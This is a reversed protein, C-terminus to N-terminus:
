LPKVQLVANECLDLLHCRIRGDSRRGAAELGAFQLLVSGVRRGDEHGMREVRDVQQREGFHHRRRLRVGRQDLRCLFGQAFDPHEGQMDAFLNVGMDGVAEKLGDPTLRQPQDLVADGRGLFDVLRDAHAKAQAPALHPQEFGIAHRATLGPHLMEHGLEARAQGPGPGLQHIHRFEVIFQDIQDGPLRIGLRAVVGDALQLADAVLVQDTEQPHQLFAVPARSLHQQFMIGAAPSRHRHGNRPGARHFARPQGHQRSPDIIVAVHCFATVKKGRALRDIGEQAMDPRIDGIDAGAVTIVRGFGMDHMQAFRLQALRQRTRHLHQMRIFLPQM